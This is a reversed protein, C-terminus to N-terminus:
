AISMTLYNFKNNHKCNCLFILTTDTCQIYFPIHLWTVFFRLNGSVFLKLLRLRNGSSYYIGKSEVWLLHLETSTCYPGGEHHSTTRTGTAMPWSWDM